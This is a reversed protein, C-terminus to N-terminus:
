IKRDLVQSQDPFDLRPLAIKVRTGRGQQSSVELRGGHDVVIKYAETLGLGLHSQSSKTSYLPNFIRTLESEAIGIGKDSVTYIVESDQISRSLKVVKAENPSSSPYSEVANAFIHLFAERLEELSALISYSKESPEILLTLNTKKQRASQFIEEELRKTQVANKETASKRSFGLLREVLNKCKLAGERMLEIDERHPNNKQMDMQLLEIFNLMGGLPNNLEHAISSGIMGLEAMKGTELLQNELAKRNTIDTLLVSFFADGRRRYSPVISKSVQFIKEESSSEQHRFEFPKDMQILAILAQPLEAQGPGFLQKFASNSDIIQFNKKVLALPSQLSNFTTKWQSQLSKVQEQVSIRQLSLGVAEAIQSILDKEFSSFPSPKAIFLEYSTNSDHNPIEVSFVPEQLNEKAYIFNQHTHSILKLWLPKMSSALVKLLTQEIDAISKAQFLELLIQKLTEIKQTQRDAREKAKHLYAERKQIAERLGQNDQELSVVQENYMEILVRQQEDKQVKEFLLLVRESLHSLQDFSLVEDILQDNYAFVIEKSFTNSVVLLAKADAKNKKLRVLQDKIQLFPQFFVYIKHQLDDIRKLLEEVDAFEAAGLDDCVFNAPRGILAVRSSFQPEKAVGM